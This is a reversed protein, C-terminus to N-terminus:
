WRRQIQKPKSTSAQLKRAKGRYQASVNTDSSYDDTTPVVIKKSALGKKNTNAKYTKTRWNGDADYWSVDFYIKAKKVGKKHSTLRAKVTVRKGAEASKPVSLRIGTNPGVKVSVAGGIGKKNRKTYVYGDQNTTSLSTVRWTGRDGVGFYAEVTWTGSRNDGSDLTLYVTRYGGKATEMIATVSSLPTKDKVRVTLVSVNSKGNPVTADLKKKSWSVKEVTSGKAANAAPPGALGILGVGVLVAVAARLGGRARNGREDIRSM